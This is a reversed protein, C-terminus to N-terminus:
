LCGGKSYPHVKLISCAASQVADESLVNPLTCAAYIVMVAFVALTTLNALNEFRSNM